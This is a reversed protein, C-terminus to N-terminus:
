NTFVIPFNIISLCSNTETVLINTLWFGLWCVGMLSLERRVWPVGETFLLLFVSAM